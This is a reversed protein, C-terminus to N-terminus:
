VPSKGLDSVLKRGNILSFHCHTLRKLVRLKIQTKGGARKKGIPPNKDTLCNRPDTRRKQNFRTIGSPKIKELWSLPRDSPTAALVAAM